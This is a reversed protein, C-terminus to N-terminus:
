PGWGTGGKYLLLLFPFWSVFFVILGLPNRNFFLMQLGLAGGLVPIVVFVILFVFMLPVELLLCVFRIIKKRNM